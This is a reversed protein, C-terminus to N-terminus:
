VVAFCPADMNLRAGLLTDACGGHALDFVILSDSAHIEDCYDEFVGMLKRRCRAAGRADLNCLFVSFQLRSGFDKM